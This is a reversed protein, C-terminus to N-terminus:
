IRDLNGPVGSLHRHDLWESRKADEKREKKRKARDVHPIKTGQGPISGTSGENSTCLRLWQVM